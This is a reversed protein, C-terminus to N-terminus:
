QNARVQNGLWDLLLEKRWNFRCRFIYKFFNLFNVLGLNCDLSVPCRVIDGQTRYLSSSIYRYRTFVLLKKGILCNDVKLLFCSSEFVCGNEPIFIIQMKFTLNDFFCPVFGVMYFVAPNNGTLNFFSLGRWPTKSRLVGDYFLVAICCEFM